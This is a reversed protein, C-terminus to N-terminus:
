LAPGSQAEGNGFQDNVPNAAPNYKFLCPLSGPTDDFQWNALWCRTIALLLISAKSPGREGLGSIRFRDHVRHAVTVYSAGHDVLMQFPFDNAVREVCPTDAARRARRCGPLHKFWFQIPGGVTKRPHPYRILGGTQSACHSRRVQEAIM